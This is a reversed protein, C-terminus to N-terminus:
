RTVAEVAAEWWLRRIESAGRASPEILSRSWLWRESEPATVGHGLFHGYVDALRAQPTRRVLDRIHANLTDLHELPLKGAEEFVGPIRATRDSPDYVTALVVVSRPRRRLVEALLVDYAGMIDRVASSMVRRGQYGAFASLLDNGGITITVLTADDSPEIEPVQEGFVDGITAGDSALITLRIGPWRTILDKGAFEPWRADVNAHLLSAAGLPAIRGAHAVRELAVAVDTEGADLAPYLDISMSDGLALYLVPRLSDPVRCDNPSIRIDARVAPIAPFPPVPVPSDRRLDRNGM